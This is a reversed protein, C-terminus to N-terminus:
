AYIFDFSPKKIQTADNWLYANINLFLYTIWSTSFSGISLYIKFLINCDEACTVTQFSNQILKKLVTMKSSWSISMARKYEFFLSPASYKLYYFLPHHMTTTKPKSKYNRNTSQYQNENKTQVHYQHTSNIM